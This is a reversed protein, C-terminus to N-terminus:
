SPQLERTPRGDSRKWSRTSPTPIPQRTTRTQAISPASRVTPTACTRTTSIRTSSSPSRTRRPQAQYRWTRALPALDLLDADRLLYMGEDATIRDGAHRGKTQDSQANDYNRNERPEQVRYNTTRMRGPTTLYTTRSVAQETTEGTRKRPPAIKAQRPIRGNRRGRRRWAPVHLPTRLIGGPSREPRVVGNRGSNRRGQVPRAGVGYRPSGSVPRDLRTTFRCAGGVDRIRIALRYTQVVGRRPRIRVSLRRAPTPSQAGQGWDAAARRKTRGDGRIRRTRGVVLGQVLHSHAAGVYRIRVILGVRGGALREVPRRSFLLVSTAPGTAAVGIDGLPRVTDGLRFVEVVPLPGAQLEGREVASAMARPPM